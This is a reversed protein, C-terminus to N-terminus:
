IYLYTHIHTYIYIYIHIYIYVCMCIYMYIYIYIYMDTAQEFGLRREGKRVMEKFVQKRIVEYKSQIILIMCNIM